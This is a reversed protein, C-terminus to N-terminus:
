SVTHTGRLGAGAAGAEMRAGEKEGTTPYTVWTHPVLCLRRGSHCQSGTGEGGRKGGRCAAGWARQIMVSQSGYIPTPNHPTRRTNM